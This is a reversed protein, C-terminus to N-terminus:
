LDDPYSINLMECAKRLAPRGYPNYNDPDRLVEAVDPRSLILMWAELKEVSRSASIGREDFAKMWAFVMYDLFDQATENVDPIIIDDTIGNKIDEIYGLVFFEPNDKVTVYNIAVESKFGMFDDDKNKLIDLAKNVDLVLNNSHIFDDTVIIRPEDGDPCKMDSM